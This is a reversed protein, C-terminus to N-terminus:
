RECRGPYQCGQHGAREGKEGCDPCRGSAAHRARREGRVTSRPSRDTRRAIGDAGIRYSRWLVWPHERFLYPGPRREIKITAGVAEVSRAYEQASAACWPIARPGMPSSAWRACRRTPLAPAADAHQVTVQYEYSVTARRPPDHRRETLASGSSTRGIAQLPRRPHAPAGRPRSRAQAACRRVDTRLQRLNAPRSTRGRGQHDAGHRLM